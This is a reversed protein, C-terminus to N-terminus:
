KKASKVFDRSGIIFPLPRQNFVDTSAFQDHFGNKGHDGDWDNM